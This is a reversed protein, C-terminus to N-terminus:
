AGLLKRFLVVEARLLMTRETNFPTGEQPYYMWHEKDGIPSLYGLRKGEHDYVVVCYDVRYKVEKTEEDVIQTSDDNIDVTHLYVKGKVEFAALIDWM